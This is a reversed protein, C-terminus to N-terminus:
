RHTGLNNDIGTKLPGEKAPKPHGSLVECALANM